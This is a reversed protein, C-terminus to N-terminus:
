FPLPDDADGADNSKNSQAREDDRRNSSQESRNDERPGLDIENVGLQLYTKGNYERTTLTGSVVVFKGKRIYQALKEGRTGWITCDTWV